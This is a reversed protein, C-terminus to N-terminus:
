MDCYTVKNGCKQCTFEIYSVDDRIGTDTINMKINCKNCECWVSM